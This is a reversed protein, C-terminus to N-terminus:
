WVFEPHEKMFPGVVEEIARKASYRSRFWVDNHKFSGTVDAYFRQEDINYSIYYHCNTKNWEATDECENDYAFKLLKRYLLQHLAVQNAFTEDTFYNSCEFSMDDSGDADDAVCHVANFSDIYYYMESKTVREFPNKRTEIGLLRLQEHTLQVEKGDITLKIEKM